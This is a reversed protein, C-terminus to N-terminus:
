PFTDYRGCGPIPAPLAQAIFDSSIGLLLALGYWGNVGGDGFCSGTDATSTKLLLHGIFRNVSVRTQHELM